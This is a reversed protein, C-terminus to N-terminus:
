LPCRARAAERSENQPNVRLRSRFLRKQLRLTTIVQAELQLLHHLRLRVFIGFDDQFAEVGLGLSFGHTPTCVCLIAALKVPTNQHGHRIKTFEKSGWGGKNTQQPSAPAPTWESGGESSEWALVLYWLGAQHVGGEEFFFFDSQVTDLTRGGSSRWLPTARLGTGIPVGPPIGKVGAPARVGPAGGTPSAACM